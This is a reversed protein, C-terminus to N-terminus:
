LRDAGEGLAYHLKGGTRGRRNHSSQRVSPSNSRQRSQQLTHVDHQVVVHGLAGVCIEVAHAAGTAEAGLTQGDGEHGRGLVGLHEVSHLYTRGRGAM